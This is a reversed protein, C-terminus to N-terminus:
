GGAGEEGAIQRIRELRANEEDRAQDRRILFRELPAAEDVYKPVGGRLFGELSQYECGRADYKAKNKIVEVYNRVSAALAPIDPYAEFVAIIKVPDPINMATFRSPPGANLENWTEQAAKYWAAFDTLGPRSAQYRNYGPEPPSAAKPTPPGAGGAAEPVGAPIGQPPPKEEGGPINQNEERSSFFEKKEDQSEQSKGSELRVQTDMKSVSQICGQTDMKSVPNEPPPVEPASEPPPLTGAVCYVGNEVVLKAKEANQMSPKYRDKQIYNHIRWHKIVIV